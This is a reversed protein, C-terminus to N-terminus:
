ALKREAKTRLISQAELNGNLAHRITESTGILVPCDQTMPIKLAAMKKANNVLRLFEDENQELKYAQLLRDRNWPRPLHGREVRSIWAQAFGAIRAVHAQPVRLVQERYERLTACDQLTM